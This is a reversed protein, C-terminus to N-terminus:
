FYGVLILRGFLMIKECDRDKLLLRSFDLILRGFLM